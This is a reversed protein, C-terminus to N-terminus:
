AVATRQRMTPSSIAPLKRLQNLRTLMDTAPVSRMMLWYPMLGVCIPSTYETSSNAYASHMVGPPKKMSALPAHVASTSMPMPEPSNTIAVPTTPQTNTVAPETQSASTTIRPTTPINM